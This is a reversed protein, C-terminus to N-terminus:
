LRLEGIGRVPGARVMEAGLARLRQEIAPDKRRVAEDFVQWARAIPMVMPVAWGRLSRVVFEMTIVAQLGQVGGAVSILGIIKNTLYPPDRDSLIELWDLVNKFAGSITGHYLPSSWLLGHACHVEDAFERIHMPPELAPDYVPVDLTRIDFLQTLAGATEAGGLAIKLAALSRSPVGLSGGVGVVRIQREM